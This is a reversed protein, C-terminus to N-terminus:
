VACGCASQYAFYISLCYDPILVVILDWIGGEFVFAFVCVCVFQCVNM